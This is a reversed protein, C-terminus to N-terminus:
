TRGAASRYTLRRLLVEAPGRLSRRQLLYAGIVTLLWVGVAFLATPATSFRGGLGFGWAAFAPACILSQTLYGSLSRQGLATVAVVPVSLGGERRQLSTAILGFLAVYGVGCFLGTTAQAATFVWSSQAPVGLLGLHELAHAAGAPWGVAIGIVATRRLLPLHEAPRELIQRRGAWFALLIAIPIVLTILGQFIILIAWFGLRPLVTELYNPNGNIGTALALPNFQEGGAVAEAPLGALLVAGIIAVVLGIVLLGTLIAAWILLKQDKRRFFLAMMILGVLGYTGIIDGTWLLAAHVLGFVVMWLHRRRLLRRAELESTGSDLQRRHLQVIGYGFLFAFMPYVRMDVVTMIVFQVVADVPGRPSVPHIATTGPQAGYLFWPTNALVILLLM